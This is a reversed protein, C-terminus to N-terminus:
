YWTEMEYTGEAGNLYKLVMTKAERNDRKGALVM